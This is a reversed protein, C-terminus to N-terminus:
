GVGGPEHHDAVVTEHRRWHRIAVQVARVTCVALGFAVAYYILSKPWAPLSTMTSTTRVGVQYALWATYGYFLIPLADVVTSLARAAPQSLYRYFFEVIIHSNRRVAMAAGLFTVVILLYRAIEETWAASNNLVYRTFVQVFVTGALLWFIAMVLWDEVGYSRADFHEDDAFVDESLADDEPATAM